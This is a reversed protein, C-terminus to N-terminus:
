AETNMPGIGYHAFSIIGYFVALGAFVIPLDRLLSSGAPFIGWPPAGSRTNTQEPM